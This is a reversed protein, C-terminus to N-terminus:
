ETSLLSPSPRGSRHTVLAEYLYRLVSRRQLRSTQVM